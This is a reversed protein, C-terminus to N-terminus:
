CGERAAEDRLAAKVRDALSRVDREDVPLTALRDLFRRALQVQEDCGKCAGLHAKVEALADPTLEEDLYDYLSRVVRACDPGHEHSM